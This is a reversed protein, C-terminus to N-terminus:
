SYWKCRSTSEATRILSAYLRASRLAFLALRLAFVWDDCQTACNEAAIYNNRM